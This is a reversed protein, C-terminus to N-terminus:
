PGYCMKTKRESSYLFTLEVINIQREKPQDATDIIKRVNLRLNQAIHYKKKIRIHPESEILVISCLKVYFLPKSAFFKVSFIISYM